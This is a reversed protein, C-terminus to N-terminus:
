SRRAPRPATDRGTTHWSSTTVERNVRFSRARLTAVGLPQGTRLFVGLGLRWSEPTWSSLQSWHEHLVFRAREESTGEAWPTLFPREDVGHVGNAALRALEELEAASPLRLILRPTSLSLGFTPWLDALM